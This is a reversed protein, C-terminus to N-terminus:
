EVGGRIKKGKNRFNNPFGDDVNALQPNCFYHCTKVDYM